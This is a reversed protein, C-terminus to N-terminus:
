AGAAVINTALEFTIADGHAYKASVKQSESAIGAAADKRKESEVGAMSVLAMSNMTIFTRGDPITITRSVISSEIDTFGANELLSEIAAADGYSHRKDEIPGLRQEAVKQLELFLANEEVPRWTAIGIRGGARLVRKMEGIAKAKNPVFQLGQQCVAVDFSGDEFPLAQADAELFEINPAANRAVALMEPDIDVGVVNKEGIRKAAQRSVIATGCCVDLLQGTDRLAAADLLPDAFPLFLTGALVSEYLEPFTPKSM